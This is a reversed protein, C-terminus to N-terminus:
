VRVTSTNKGALTNLYQDYFQYAGTGYTSNIFDNGGLQIQLLRDNMATSEYIPDAQSISAAGRSTPPPVYEEPKDVLGVTEALKLKSTDVFKETGMEVLAEGSEQKVAETFTRDDLFETYKQKVGRKLTEFFGPQKAAVEGIGATNTGTFTPQAYPKGTIPNVAVSSQSTLSSMQPTVATPDALLSDVKPAEAFKYGERLPGAVPDPLKTTVDAGTPATTSAVAEDATQVTVAKDALPAIDQTFAEVVKAGQTTVTESVKSWASNEGAFFTDSASDGLYKPILDSMGPIKKLATKSFETVFSSIGDTVTRFAAHGAKAFKAGAELIKGAGKLLPNGAKTLAGIGKGIAGGIGSFMSGVMAGIPTFMLALQGVIGIKGMFKGIKKFASKIGKGISKFASKVGKKIKKFIKSFFGV